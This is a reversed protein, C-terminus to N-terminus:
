EISVVASRKSVGNENFAEIAFSYRQGVNLARLTIGPPSDAFVQYAQYLKEPAIGWLVNYGTAGEVPSWEIWAERPDADRRVAFEAPPAPASGNGNGFVRLDAIALNKAGVRGHVYRIFRTTVASPLEVYANARSRKERSLDALPLFREGDRSHELRFQTVVGPGDEYVDSQFDGYNVQVARVTKPSGLDITLTEGPEPDPAVWMTRPNEDVVNAAPFGLRFDSAEVKKRYSLLMWGTFLADHDSARRTPAFHPLDGFRTTVFMQGDVDFGAPFLVIRREFPWNVGIWCTGTNWFNGFADQFTNGHGAGEVFGGPRYAIPNYPAYAFPGLPADGVYTCNAYVNYETGPAAYQLYYRGAYKTMWAGEIYPSRSEGHDRGFREWGHKEPELSILAKPDGAYTLRKDFDLEIGYIPYVNSSGWYLYWRGDDDRFFAPDWPGPPIAGEPYPEPTGDPVAKPLNPMQRNFFDIKGTAPARTVLIPRPSFASQLLYIAGGHSWAAPAVVDEFPWRSPTVFEWRALDKSRWYGGSVTTFLYYEGGHNLIVPDAAQRYSIGENIQEFNYRYDLDIPNCWTRPRPTTAALGFSALAVTLVGIAGFGARAGM